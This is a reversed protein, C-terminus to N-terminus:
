GSRCSFGVSFLSPAKVSFTKPDDVSKVAVMGIDLKTRRLVPLRPCEGEGGDVLAVLEGLGDAGADKERGMNGGDNNDMPVEDADLLIAFGAM